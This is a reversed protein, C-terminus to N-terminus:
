FVPRSYRRWERRATIAVLWPGFLRRPDYAHSVAHVTLPVDQLADEIDGPDKFCRSALPDLFPTM